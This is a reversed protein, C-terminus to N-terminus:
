HGATRSRVARTRIGLLTELAAIDRSDIVGDGNADCGWSGAYSGNPADLAPHPDGDALELMLAALDNVDLLGDGNCDGRIPTDLRYIGDSTVFFIKGDPAEAVDIVFNTDHDLIAIPDPFPQADIDPVWLISKTVFTSILYGHPLMDNRGHLATMGTPAVIRPFTYLPPTAGEIIPGNGATFPWGYYGGETVIDIEDNALDGNDTAILRNHEADWSMDFPNRFGRAFKTATGNPAIRFIKGGNWDPEAAILGGGFDGIGVFIAGDSAVTPNGGHHEASTARGPMSLDCVLQQLITEAGTALEITSIVDYSQVPTTYHVVATADDRLAMGLLGSDGVADTTVHAVPTSEGQGDLRNITGNTATYYITGRSDIAISSPFGAPTGIRRAHFGPPTAAHAVVAFLIACTAGAATKLEGDESVPVM